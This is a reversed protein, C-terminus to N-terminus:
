KGNKSSEKKNYIQIVNIALYFIFCLAQIEFVNYLLGFFFFVVFLLINIKEKRYNLFLSLVFSVYLLAGIFGTEALVKIYENDAYFGKYLNYHEYIDPTIILSASSGFTGFGSGFLPHDAFVKLGMKIHYIRGDAVSNDITKGSAMEEFRNVVSPEKNKDQTSEDNTTNILRSADCRIALNDTINSIAITILFSVILIVLFIIIEKYSKNKTSVIVLYIFYFAIAVMASRSASLFVGLLIIINFLIKIVKQYKKEGKILYNFLILIITIFSAFTNPNNMLSYARVYNSKYTIALAWSSPFMVCKNTLIEIISFSTLLVAVVYLIYLPYKYDEYKLVNNRLVYFIVYMTTISRFQYLYSILSVNNILNSILGFSLFCIYFIDYLKLNLKSKNKIITLLLLIYAIIDPIIKISSITYTALIERFPIFIALIILSYKILRNLIKEM